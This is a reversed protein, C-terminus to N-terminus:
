RTHPLGKAFRTIAQVAADLNGALTAGSAKRPSLDHNGDVAWHVTISPPLGYSEVESRVGFPDREGQVILTPCALALLHATRLSAPQKPPHFPYSLCALGSIRGRDFLSAAALSAVRGGLSKGGILIRRAREKGAIQDLATEYEGVLAEAKPPPKRSGTEVRAAMYAFDFRAVRLGVAALSDSVANMWDSTMPAGAGPALVLLTDSDAPGDTLFAPM